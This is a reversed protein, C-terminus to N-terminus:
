QAFRKVHEGGQRQHKIKTSGVSIFPKQLMSAFAHHLLCTSSGQAGAAAARRPKPASTLLGIRKELIGLMGRGTSHKVIQLPALTTRVEM